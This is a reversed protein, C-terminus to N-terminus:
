SQGPFGPQMRFPRRHLRCGGLPTLTGWPPSTWRPSRVCKAYITRTTVLLTLPTLLRLDLVLDFPEECQVELVEIQRCDSPKPTLDLCLLGAERRAKKSVQEVPRLVRHGLCRQHAFSM